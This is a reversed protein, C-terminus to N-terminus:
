LDAGIGKSSEAWSTEWDTVAKKPSSTAAPKDTSGFGGLRGTKEDFGEVPTFTVKLVPMFVVQALKMGPKIYITKCENRNWVAAMWENQYDGDILGVLNGLVIGEKSGLGSRPLLFGAINLPPGESGIHAHFGLPILRCEGPAIQVTDWVCARVDYGASGPTARKPMFNHEPNQAQMKKALETLILKM